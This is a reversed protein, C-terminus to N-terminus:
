REEDPGHGDYALLPADHPQARGGRIWVIKIVSLLRAAEVAHGGDRARALEAERAAALRFEDLALEDRRVVEVHEADGGRASAGERFFLSAAGRGDDDDAM